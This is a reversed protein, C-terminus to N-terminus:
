FDCRVEGYVPFFGLLGDKEPSPGGVAIQENVRGALTLPIM